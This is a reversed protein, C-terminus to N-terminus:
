VEAIMRKLDMNLQFIERLLAQKEERYEEEMAIGQVTRFESAVGEEQVNEDHARKLLEETEVLKANLKNIRRRLKEIREEHEVKAQSLAKDREEAILDLTIQLANEKLNKGNPNDEFLEELRVALASEIHEVQNASFRIEEPQSEEIKSEEKELLRKSVELETKLLHCNDKLDKLEEEMTKVSAELQDRDNVIKLLQERTRDTVRQLDEQPLSIGLESLTSDVAERIMHQLDKVNLVSVNKLGRQELRRLSTSKTRNRLARFINISLNGTM